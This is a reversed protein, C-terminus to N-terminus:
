DNFRGFRAVIAPNPGKNAAPKASACFQNQALAEVRCHGDDRSETDRLRAKLHQRHLLAPSAVGFRPAHKQVFYENGRPPFTDVVHDDM